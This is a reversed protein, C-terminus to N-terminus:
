IYLLNEADLLQYREYFFGLFELYNRAEGLFMLWVAFKM